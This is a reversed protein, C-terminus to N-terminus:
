QPAQPFAHSAGAPPSAVHSSPTHPKLQLSPKTAQSPAQTSVSVLGEYQPLQSTAHASSSTQVSPSHVLSHPEPSVFQLPTHTSVSLSVVFQPPQPSVQVGGVLPLAVHLAPAQPM